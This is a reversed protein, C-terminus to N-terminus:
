GSNTGVLRTLEALTERQLAILDAPAGPAIWRAFATSFVSVVVDGALRATLDAIGRATMAGAVARSLAALKLQERERLADHHEVIAHRARAQEQSRAERLARCGADLARSALGMVPTGAPADAIAEVFGSEFVYQGAFLVERKDGYHRFFTRETVGARAAIDAVTTADYGNETFLEIAAQQLRGTSGPRWRAM